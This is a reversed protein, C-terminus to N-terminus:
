INLHRPTEATVETEQHTTYENPFKVQLLDEVEKVMQELNQPEIGAKKLATNTKAGIQGDINGIHYGLRILGCQIVAESNKGTFRDVQIGAALIASIGMAQYPKMNTGKGNQYYNYVLTHSGRCEFHWAENLKTDPSNIIPVVGQKAALIWFDNLKIKLKKLDIDMARGAEHLSGGPPPSYAKKKGSVYDLNAQFQMDYSRFLDSLVLEGGHAKVHASLVQLARYMDPTCQAMRKPLSIPNGEKSKYISPFTIPILPTKM